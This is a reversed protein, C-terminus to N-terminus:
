LSIVQSTKIGEKVEHRYFALWTSVRPFCFTNFSKARFLFLAVSPAKELPLCAGRNLKLKAKRRFHAPPHGPVM